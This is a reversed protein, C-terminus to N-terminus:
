SSQEYNLVIGFYKQINRLIAKKVMVTLLESGLVMNCLITIMNMINNFSQTIHLDDRKMIIVLM